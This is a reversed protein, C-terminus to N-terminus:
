FTLMQELEFYMYISEDLQQRSIKTKSFYKIIKAFPIKAFVFM